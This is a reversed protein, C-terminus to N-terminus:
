LDGKLSEFFDPPTVSPDIEGSEIARRYEQINQIQEQIKQQRVAVSERRYPEPESKSKRPSYGVRPTKQTSAISGTSGDYFGSDSGLTDSSGISQYATLAQEELYIQYPTKEKAESEKSTSSKKENLIRQAESQRTIEENSATKRPAFDEIIATTKQKEDYSSKGNIKVQRRFAEEATKGIEGEQVQAPVEPVKAVEEEEKEKEKGSMIVFMYIFLLTLILGVVILWRQFGEKVTSPSEEDLNSPKKDEAM